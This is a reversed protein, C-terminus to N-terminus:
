KEENTYNKLYNLDNIYILNDKRSIIKKNEFVDLIRYLSARGMNLSSAISSYSM